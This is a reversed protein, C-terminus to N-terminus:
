RAVVVGHAGRAVLVQGSRQLSLGEVRFFDLGGRGIRETNSGSRYYDFTTVVLNRGVADFAIGEPLIGGEIPQEAVKRLSGSAADFSLLSVSSNRTFVPDSAPTVFSGQMNATALLSGDPSIAIGESNIGSEVNAVTRHQPAATNQTDFRIVSITSPVSNIFFGRVDFGWQLNNTFYYEGSPSWRGSFPYKGTVVPSGYPRVTVMGSGSRTVEFFYVEGEGTLNRRDQFNVAVYRGSPHWDVYVAYLGQARPIAADPPVGLARFSFRQLTGLQGMRVPIFALEGEGSPLMNTVALLDGQPHVKVTLPRLLEDTTCVVTPQNPNRMSIVTLRTGNALGTLTTANNFSSPKSTEIVYAYEGRADVDIVGVVETVANSVGLRSARAAVLRNGSLPFVLLSDEANAPQKQDLQDTIYSQALMDADSIAAIYRGTFPIREQPSPNGNEEGSSSDRLYECASMSAALFLSLTATQICKKLFKVSQM